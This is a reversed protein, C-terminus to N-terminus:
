SSRYIIFFISRSRFNTSLLAFPIAHFASFIISCIRFPFSFLRASIFHFLFQCLQNSISSIHSYHLQSASKSACEIYYFRFPFACLMNINSGLLIPASHLYISLSYVPFSVVRCLFSYTVTSILRISVIHTPNSNVPLSVLHICCIRFRYLYPASPFSFLSCQFNWLLFQHSFLLLSSLLHLAISGLYYSLFHFQICDNQYSSSLFTFYYLSSSKSSILSYNSHGSHLLFAISLFICSM